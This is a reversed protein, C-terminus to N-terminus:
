AIAQADSGEASAGVTTRAFSLIGDDVPDKLLMRRDKEYHMLIKWPLKSGQRPMMGKSRQVYGSQFDDLVGANTACSGADRPTAVAYGNADMYTFLRCLYGAAIDAKLTFAANTYGFFWAFNPIDQVLVSKYTMQHGFDRRDGDVSLQMGGLMQLNLGTATVIVDAELERGSKLLIGKETFTEIQDTVISAEGSALVKFFDGDSAVCLREDFPM